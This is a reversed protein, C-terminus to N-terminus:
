GRTRAAPARGTGAARRRPSAEGLRQLRHRAVEHADRGVIIVPTGRTNSFNWWATSSATALAAPQGPLGQEVPRHPTASARHGTRAQGPPPRREPGRQLPREGVRQDQPLDPRADSAPQPQHHRAARRQGPRRALEEERDPQGDALAVAEGLTRGADRDVRGPAGAEARDADRDGADLDPDRVVALHERAPRVDHLAVEVPGLFGRRRQAVPPEVGAVDAVEVGVAVQRDGVALLVEDDRGAALVDRGRRDLQPQLLAREHRLGDQDAVPALERGREDDRVEHHELLVQPLRARADPERSCSTAARRRGPSRGPADEVLM